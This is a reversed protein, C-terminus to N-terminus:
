CNGIGAGGGECRGFPALFQLLPYIYTFLSNKIIIYKNLGTGRLIRRIIDHKVIGSLLPFQQSIKPFTSGM